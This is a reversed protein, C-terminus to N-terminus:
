HAGRPVRHVTFSVSLEPAAAPSKGLGIVGSGELAMEERRLAVEAMGERRLYTGNLSQDILM